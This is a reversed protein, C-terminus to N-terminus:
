YTVAEPYPRISTDQKIDSLHLQTTHNSPCHKLRAIKYTSLLTELLNIIEVAKDTQQLALLVAQLKAEDIEYLNARYIKEHRTSATGEEATLLEEFLKEGPRLGSFKIEIDKGPELGSLEILDRAMDVIKVPKGMDLVFVEGGQIMAGAQLVLQSAEPITMFYRVMDPHTITIPGGKAIQKKFLPVVSGRSGLVNGFRVATYQTTSMRNMNQVILEAVRKTAGMVSTPNVAKDTSIMVFREAKFRDAAEAVIKTGFINNRVAEEPQAEMLPVHKHAAAHFVVQPKYKAFVAHIRAQDRIDSIVPILSFNNVKERLERDIEYISNEGKGLLILSQPKLKAVQRSLESGISGGAGTILVRKGTLYGAILALDLTVPERRLLDEVDVERLQQVTVRGDLLEYLGPLIKLSCGPLKASHIIKRISHGEVSPMAIIIENINFQKVIQAIDERNGLVPVGFLMQKQKNPDDDIFGVLKKTNSYRQGLERAITAGADGAGIILSRTVHGTQLSKFYAAVRVFLRSAGILIINLLWSLLYISRPLNAGSMLMYGTIVVSGLTVAGVIALLENISAYRWLRRYLGFLYFCLLRIILFEPLYKVATQIYEPRIIGEFRILLAIFPVITVIVADMFVLSLTILSRPM